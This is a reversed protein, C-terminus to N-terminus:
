HTLYYIDKKVYLDHLEKETKGVVEDYTFDIEDSYYSLAKQFEEDGNFKVFISIDGHERFDAKEFKVDIIRKEEM